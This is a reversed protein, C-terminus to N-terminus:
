QGVKKVSVGAAAIAAIWMGDRAREWTEGIGGPPCREPWVVEPPSSRALVSRLTDEAPHQKDYAADAAWQVAEREDGTLWGRSQPPERYLPQPVVDDGAAREAQTKSNYLKAYDTWECMWAVPERGSSALHWDQGSDGTTAGCSGSSVCQPKGGGSAAQTSSVPTEPRNGCSAAQAAHNAEGDANAHSALKPEHVVRVSEMLGLSEDIVEVIWDSLRADLDHTVELTIRETRMNDGKNEQESALVSKSPKEWDGNVKCFGFERGISESVEMAHAAAEAVGTPPKYWVFPWVKQICEELTPLPRERNDEAAQVAEDRATDRCWTV